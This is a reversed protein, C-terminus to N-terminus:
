SKSANIFSEVTERDSQGELFSIYQLFIKKTLNDEKTDFFSRIDGFDWGFAKKKEKLDNHSIREEILKILEDYKNKVFLELAKFYAIKPRFDDSSFHSKYKKHLANYKDEEDVFLYLEALDEIIDPVNDGGLELAKEYDKLAQPYKKMKFYSLGKLRWLESDQPALEVALVLFELANSYAERGILENIKEKLELAKIKRNQEENQGYIEAIDESYKSKTSEFDQFQIQWQSKLSALDELEKKFDKKITSIDRIGLFGLIGFLGLIATIFLNLQEYNTSYTEKLLDKEVKYTLQSNELRTVTNELLRVKEKLKIIELSDNQTFGTQVFGLLLIILIFLNRM